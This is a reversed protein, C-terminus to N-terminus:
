KEEKKRQREIRRIKILEVMMEYFVAAVNKRYERYDDRSLSQAKANYYKITERIAPSSHGFPRYGTVIAAGIGPGTFIDCNWGYVGACYGVKVAGDSVYDVECYGASFCLYDAIVDNKKIQM